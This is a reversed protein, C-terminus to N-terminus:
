EEDSEGPEEGITKGTVSGENDSENELRDLDADAMAETVINIFRNVKANVEASREDARRKGTSGPESYRHEWAFTLYDLGATVRTWYTEQEWLDYEEPTPLIQPPTKENKLYRLILGFVMGDDEVKIPYQFEKVLCQM